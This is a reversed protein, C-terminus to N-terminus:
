RGRLWRRLEPLQRRAIPVTTGDDLVLEGTGNARTRLEQARQLNAVYGRHIRMFGRPALEQELQTLYARLVYRGSDSVVRLYDGRAELYLISDRPILRTGGGVINEVAVINPDLGGGPSGAVALPESAARHQIIREVAAAVREPTAPKVLYDLARLEFATVAGSEFASVFVLAPPREFRAVIRGLELGDLGPMRVDLFIADYARASAKVVAERGGLVTDVERVLPHVRLIRALDELPPREDDVVLVDLGTL